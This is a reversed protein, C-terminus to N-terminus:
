PQWAHSPVAIGFGTLYEMRYSRSKAFLNIYNALPKGIWPTSTHDLLPGYAAYFQNWPLFRYAPGVGALYLM